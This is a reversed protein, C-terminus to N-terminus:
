SKAILARERGLVKAAMSFRMALDGGLVQLDGARRKRRGSATGWKLSFRRPVLPRFREAAKERPSDILRYPRAIPLGTGRVAVNGM